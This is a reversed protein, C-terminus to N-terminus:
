IRRRLMPAPVRIYEYNKPLYKSVAIYRNTYAAFPDRENESYEYNFKIM